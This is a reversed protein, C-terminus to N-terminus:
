MGLKDLKQHTSFGKFGREIIFATIKNKEMDTKAYVVLTDADPGNTIWMKNGNLIYRDGKLDARLRMSVVDSGSGPESMALAGVHDGSVLKPLYKAKQATTGNRNIQNVCLNSHAGYSLAVSGSARSIEEMAITHAFYGMNVGGYEEPVTMGLLGMDGFKKWMDMPFANDRDIQAARPALERQAFSSVAERFEEQETSLGAIATNYTSLRSLQVAPLKSGLLSTAASPCLSRAFQRCFMLIANKKSDTQLKSSLASIREKARKLDSWAKASGHTLRLILNMASGRTILERDSPAAVVPSPSNNDQLASSLRVMSTSAWTGGTDPQAAAA